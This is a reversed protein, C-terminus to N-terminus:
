NHTSRLRTPLKHVMGVQVSGAVRADCRPTLSEERSSGGAVREGWRTGNRPLLPLWVSKRSKYGSKLQHFLPVWPKLEHLSASGLSAGSSEGAGRAAPSYLVGGRPARPARTVPVIAGPSATSPKPASSPGQLKQSNGGRPPWWMKVFGVCPDPAPRELTCGHPSGVRHPGSGPAVLSPRGLWGLGEQPVPGLGWLSSQSCGRPQLLPPPHPSLSPVRLISPGCSPLILSAKTPLTSLAHCGTVRFAWASIRPWM